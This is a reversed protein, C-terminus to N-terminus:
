PQGKLANYLDGIAPPVDDEKMFKEFLKEAEEVYCNKDYLYTDEFERFSWKPNLPYSDMKDNFEQSWAVFAVKGECLLGTRKHYIDNTDLATIFETFDKSWEYTPRKAFYSAVVFVAAAFQRAERMFLNKEFRPGTGEDRKAELSELIPRVLNLYIGKGVGAPDGLCMAELERLAPLSGEITIEFPPLYDKLDSDRTPISIDGTISFSIGNKTRRLKVPNTPKHTKM